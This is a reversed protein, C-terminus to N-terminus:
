TQDQYDIALVTAMLRDRRVRTYGATTEPRAHRALEQVARLDKTADLATTLCTHRLIHPSVNGVGAALCVDKVHGWITAPHSPGGYRGPFVYADGHCGGPAGQPRFSAMADVVAPHLPLRATVMGKGVITLWEGDVDSWRLGAIEARRLGEYLALLAALGKRDKRARAAADLRAAQGPDLARCVMRGKTPVLVARWPANQRGSSRWYARLSSRLLARASRSRPLTEAFSRVSSAPVDDLTFGSRAFGVAARRLQSSYVAITRDAAGDAVLAEAFAGLDPRM